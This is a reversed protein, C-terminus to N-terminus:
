RRAVGVLSSGAMFQTVSIPLRAVSTSSFSISASRFTALKRSATSRGPGFAVVASKKRTEVQFLCASSQPWYRERPRWTAISPFSRLREQSSASPLRRVATSTTASRM